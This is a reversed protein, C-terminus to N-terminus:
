RAYFYHLSCLSYFLPRGFGKVFHAAYFRCLTRTTQLPHLESSRTYSRRIIIWAKEYIYRASHLSTRRDPSLSICIRNTQWKLEIWLEFIRCVNEPSLVVCTWLNFVEVVRKLEFNRKNRIEFDACIHIASLLWGNMAFIAFQQSRNQKQEGRESKGRRTTNSRDTDYYVACVLMFLYVYGHTFLRVCLTQYFIRDRWFSWHCFLATSQITVRNTVDSEKSNRGDNSLFFCPFFPFLLTIFNNEASPRDTLPCFSRNALPM